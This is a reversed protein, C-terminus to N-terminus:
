SGELRYLRDDVDDAFREVFMLARVEAAAAAPDNENDLAREVADLGESRRAEVERALADLAARDTDADDLAERWRMQQELFRPPMATNREPDVPKGALECLLTARALPDGLRAYAENIRASWQMAIRQASAGAAAHRDPHAEAQLARRRAALDIGGLAFRRPLGFLSFDDSAIDM